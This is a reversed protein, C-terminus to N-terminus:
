RRLSLLAFVGGVVPRSQFGSQTNAATDYWDTFPVRSPSTHAFRYLASILVDSVPHDRLWAATWMEWDGKTYSHRPDLPVGFQNAQALYWDGEKHAVDRPVLNLGLLSDPYGNYKLSWTGPQDYALRLHDNGTDQAKDVWQGIYDRATGGYRSSDSSNGAATAIRGMAGIALIGKLALNASHAIFGTFDDTQNQYGPDLANDVLYDAWQKLITYHASAFAAATASSTRALYAATMLLMNASEEVPMDEENGDNHGSANPYSSGLDHEAFKKPWGGNEAYDFLPELLLGLYQPDLYLFVPMAPYTVDITSVNGDSSIEKLFAWPRGKRSVLETGAYAQRLALACLAAYQAGGAATAETRVKRDLAATRKQAAAADSHFFATMDQWNPWYSRWLPPLQEGLYSVAPERVHGVSLLARTSDRVSGLDFRFAFVPWNDNISRPQRTDASDALAHGSLATARVSTDSGIQWSLGPRDTASWVVTGWSAMDGNEKLVGPSDPAFSLSTATTGGSGSLRQQSWRIKTGSDGSAWEGSIDLYLSVDHALGDSSRVDAIVYSLPMSQRRLDGPEVPSLFTLTLEAGGAEFVFESRTATLTLSRQAAGRSLPHDPVNPAGLFLYNTGDVRIVGTMATTRGTWFSPWHGTPLDANLWTSLYPSRVALPVAPPRIPEFSPAAPGPFRSGSSAPVATSAQQPRAEAAQAGPAFGPLLGAGAAGLGAGTWRILGRRSLRGDAAGPGAPSDPTNSDNAPLETNDNRPTMRNEQLLREPFVTFFQRPRAPRHHAETRRLSGHPSSAVAGADPM